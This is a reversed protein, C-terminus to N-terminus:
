PQGCPCTSIAVAQGSKCFACKNEYFQPAYNKREKIDIGKGIIRLYLIISAVVM